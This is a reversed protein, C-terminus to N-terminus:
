EREITGCLFQVLVRTSHYITYSYLFREIEVTLSINSPRTTDLRAELCLLCLVNWFVNGSSYICFSRKPIVCSVKKLVGM